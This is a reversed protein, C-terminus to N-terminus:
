IPKCEYRFLAHAYAAAAAVVKAPASSDQANVRLLPPAAEASLHLAAPPVYSEREPHRAVSAFGLMVALHISAEMAFPLAIIGVGRIEILGALGPPARGFLRSERVFLDVRDDAVLMAGREILRLALQSKGAGSAGLILVGADDPAGFQRGSSALLVCSAHINAAGNM